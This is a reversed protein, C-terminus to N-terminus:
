GKRIDGDRANVTVSNEGKEAAIRATPSDPCIQRGHRETLARWGM